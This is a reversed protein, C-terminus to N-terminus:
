ITTRKSINKELDSMPCCGTSINGNENWQVMIKPLKLTVPEIVHEHLAENETMFIIDHIMDKIAKQQTKDSISAEILTLIKGKMRNLRYMFDNHINTALSNEIAYEGMFLTDNNGRSWLTFKNDLPEPINSAVGNNTNNLKSM